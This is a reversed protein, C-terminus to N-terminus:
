TWIVGLDLWNLGALEMAGNWNGVGTDVEVFLLCITPILSQCDYRARTNTRELRRSCKILMLEYGHNTVSSVSIHNSV